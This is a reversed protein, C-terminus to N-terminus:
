VAYEMTYSRIRFYSLPMDSSKAARKQAAKAKAKTNYIGVGDVEYQKVKKVKGGSIGRPNGSRPASAGMKRALKKAAALTAVKASVIIGGKTKRATVPTPNNSRPYVTDYYAWYYKVRGYTNGESSRRQLHVEVPKGTRDSQKQAKALAADTNGNEKVKIAM